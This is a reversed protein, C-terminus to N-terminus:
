IMTLVSRYPEAELNLAAIKGKLLRRMDIRQELVARLDYGEMLFITKEPNQKLLQIVNPSWGNISLFVGMTQRGSRTVQGSLGDLQRIDALQERWRCEVLYHWGDFEFAADIQEGGDNRRFSKHVTIGHLDFARNLLDELMYGRHQPNDSRALEDFQALLLKSQREVMERQEKQRDRQAAELDAAAAARAKAENEELIGRYTAAKQQVGRAVFEDQSLHFASFESAVAILNGVVENEQGTKAVEELIMAAADRKSRKTGTAPDRESLFRKILPEPVAAKRLILDAATRKINVLTSIVEIALRRADSDTTM